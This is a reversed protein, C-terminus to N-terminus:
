GPCCAAELLSDYDSSVVRINNILDVFQQNQQDYYNRNQTIEMATLFRLQLYHKQNGFLALSVARYMCNGDGTVYLAQFETALVPHFMNLIEMAIDDDRSSSNPRQRNPLREQYLSVLRSAFLATQTNNARGDQLFRLFVDYRFHDESYICSRCYFPQEDQKWNSLTAHIEICGYHTCFKCLDCEIFEETCSGGCVSCLPAIKSM